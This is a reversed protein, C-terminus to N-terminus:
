ECECKEGDDSLKEYAELKPSGSLQNINGIVQAQNSLSIERVQLRPTRDLLLSTVDPRSYHGSPDAANKAYVIMGLDIDAAVIGEEEGTLPGAVTSGDPGFIETWGGGCEILDAREETDALRTIMERSIVATSMLVFCQGELAYFRSACSNAVPGLSFAYKKYLSFSPWSAVHVQEGFSYMAYRTLPQLHEWCNLGGIRGIRTDFVQLDSGDGEGWVTREVHTPKLKRHRGIIQGRPDIFLQTCYLSSGSRETMGMVVYANTKKAEACLTETTPSPIEVANNWLESFFSMGWAPTGLWIWWPYGPLWSEPFTILEAGDESAKKILDCAKELSAERNLWVPAAQIAAGRFQPHKDM